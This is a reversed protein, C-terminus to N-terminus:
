DNSVGGYKRMNVPYVVGVMEGAEFVLVPKLPDTVRIEAHRDFGRLQTANVYVKENFVALRRIPKAAEPADIDYRLIATRYDGAENKEELQKWLKPLLSSQEGQFVMKLDENSFKYIVCGDPCILTYDTGYSAWTLRSSKYLADICSKLIYKINM